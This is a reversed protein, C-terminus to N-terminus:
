PSEPAPTPEPAPADAPAPTMAGPLPQDILQLLEQLRGRVEDIRGRQATILDDREAVAARLNKTEAELTEIRSGLSLYGWILLVLSIALAVGLALQLRSRSSDRSTGGTARSAFGGPPISRLKPEQEM